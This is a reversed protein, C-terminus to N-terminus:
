YRWLGQLWQINYGIEPFIQINPLHVKDQLEVASCLAQCTTLTWCISTSHIFQAGMMPELKGELFTLSIYYGQSKWHRCINRKEPRRELSHSRSRLVPCEIQGSCPQGKEQFFFFYNILWSQKVTSEWWYSRLQVYLLSSLSWSTHEQLPIKPGLYLIWKDRNFEMSNSHGMWSLSSKRFRIRADFM